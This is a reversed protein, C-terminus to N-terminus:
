GGDRNIRCDCLAPVTRRKRKQLTYPLQHVSLVLISNARPPETVSAFYETCSLCYSTISEPDAEPPVVLLDVQKSNVAEAKLNECSLKFCTNSHYLNM